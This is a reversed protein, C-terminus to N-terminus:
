KSLRNLAIEAGALLDFEDHPSCKAQASKVVKKGDYLRALTTVGDSTIVIKKSYSRSVIPEMDCEHIYQVLSGDLREANWSHKPSGGFLRVIEGTHFNHYQKHGTIRVLDGVKFKHAESPIPELMEDTWNYYGEVIRYKDPDVVKKITVVDGLLKKMDSIFGDSGYREGVILDKRVRVKDGVKFKM